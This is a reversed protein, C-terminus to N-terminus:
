FLLCFFCFEITSINSPTHPQFSSALFFLYVAFSSFSLPFTGIIFFIFFVIGDLKISPSILITLAFLGFCTFLCASYCRIRINYESMIPILDVTRPCSM